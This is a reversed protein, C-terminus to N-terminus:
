QIGRISRKAEVQILALEGTPLRFVLGSPMPPLCQNIPSVPMGALRMRGQPFPQIGAFLWIVLHAGRLQGNLDLLLEAHFETGPV